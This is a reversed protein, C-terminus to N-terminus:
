AQARERERAAILRAQVKKVDDLTIKKAKGRASTANKRQGMVVPEGDLEAYITRTNTGPDGEFKIPVDNDNLEFEGKDFKGREKKKAKTVDVKAAAKTAKKKRAKDTFGAIPSMKWNAIEDPTGHETVLYNQAQSKTAFSEPVITSGYEATYTGDDNTYVTSDTNSITAISMGEGDVFKVLDEKPEGEKAEKGVAKKLGKKKKTTKKKGKKKSADIEADTSPPEPTGKDERGKELAAAEDRELGATEAAAVDNDYMEQIQEEQTQDSDLEKKTIIGAQEENLTSGFLRAADYNEIGLAEALNDIADSFHVDGDIVSAIAEQAAKTEETASVAEEPDTVVDVTPAPQGGTTEELQDSRKGVVLHYELRQQRQLLM